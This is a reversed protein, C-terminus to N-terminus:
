FLTKRFYLVLVTLYIFYTITHAMVIGEIQFLGILYNSSVFMVSLSILEAIIFAVTLKKAFFQYGLILSAAKLTDGMLQWFFLATVPLFADTFLM